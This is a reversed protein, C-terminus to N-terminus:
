TTTVVIHCVPVHLTRTTVSKTIHRRSPPRKLEHDVHVRQIRRLQLADTVTPEHSTRLEEITQCKADRQGLSTRHVRLLTQQKLHSIRRQM